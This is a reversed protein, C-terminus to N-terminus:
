KAVHGGASKEISRTIFWQQLISLVNNVFWYLVLGAPFNLFMVTFVVPMFMMVKAQMPDAPAPNLKQQILMSAGMLIPLVYYPDKLSLDIIWAFFPAERLEVSGLLVYYLSIFVPIQVLVPLCGGFPNIKEKKYLEMMAQSLKQKDEAYRVKLAEMKPQMARMNGMSRYSSASLKYFLGKILFTTLIIAIGWNESFLFMKKLLWFIPQCLPWLIGYDVAFELGSGLVGLTEVIEPGAYLMSSILGQEGAPVVVPNKVFGVSYIGQDKSAQYLSKSEKTPIWAAVFYQEVMAAWGGDVSQEFSKKNMDKFTIKKFPTEPTYVAAGTFTQVGLFGSSAQEVEKRKLRAYFSGTYNEKSKNDILYQVKIAYSGREFVFRKTIKLGHIVPAHLDVILEHRGDELVFDSASATLKARGRGHIDPGFESALGSQAIYYRKSSDELLSFGQQPKDESQAYNLLVLKRIDGGVTDLDLELVDTKVHVVEATHHRHPLTSGPIQEEVTQTASLVKPIDQRGPVNAANLGEPDSLSRSAETASVSADLTKDQVWANYLLSGLLMIAALLFFRNNQTNM